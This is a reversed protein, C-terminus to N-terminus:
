PQPRGIEAAEGTTNTIIGAALAIGTVGPVPEIAISDLTIELKSIFGNALSYQMARAYIEGVGTIVLATDILPTIPLTSQDIEESFYITLINDDINAPDGADYVAAVIHLGEPITFPSDSGGHGSCGYLSIVLVSTMLLSNFCAVIYCKM